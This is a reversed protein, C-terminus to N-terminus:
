GAAQKPFFLPESLTPNAAGAARRLRLAGEIQERLGARDIEPRSYGASLGILASGAAVPHLGISALANVALPENEGFALLQTGLENFISQAHRVNRVALDYERIERTSVATERPSPPAVCALARLQQLVDHRLDLMARIPRGLWEVVIWALVAIALITMLNVYWQM